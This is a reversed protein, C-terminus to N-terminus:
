FKYISESPDQFNILDQCVIRFLTLPMSHLIIYIRIQKFSICIYTYVSSIELYIHIASSIFFFIVKFISTNASFLLQVTSCCLYRCRVVSSVLYRVICFKSSTGIPQIASHTKPFAKTLFSHHLDALPLCQAVLPHYGM